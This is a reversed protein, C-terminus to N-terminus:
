NFVLMNERAQEIKLLLNDIFVEIIIVPYPLLDTKNIDSHKIPVFLCCAYLM